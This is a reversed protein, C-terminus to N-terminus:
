LKLKRNMAVIVCAQGRLAGRYTEQLDCLNGESLENIQFIVAYTVRFKRSRGLEKQVRCYLYKVFGKGTDFATPM